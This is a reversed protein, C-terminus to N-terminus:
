KKETLLLIGSQPAVIMTQKVIQNNNLYLFEEHSQSLKAFIDLSTKKYQAFDKIQSLMNKEQIKDLIESYSPEKKLFSYDLSWIDSFKSNFFKLEAKENFLAVGFPIEKLLLKYTTEAEKLLTQLGEETTKDQGYKLTIANNPPLFTKLENWHFDSLENLHSQYFSNCFGSKTQNEEIQIPFPILDLGEKLLLTKQILDLTTKKEKQLLQHQFSHNNFWVVFLKQNSAHSYIIRGNLLFHMNTTQSNLEIDFPKEDMKLEYFAKLVDEKEPSNLNQIINDFSLTKDTINLLLRLKDSCYSCFGNTTQYEFYYGHPATYLIDKIQMLDDNTKLLKKKTKIFSFILLCFTITLVLFCSIIFANM